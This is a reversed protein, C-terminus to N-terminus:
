KYDIMINPKTSLLYAISPQVIRSCVGFAVAAMAYDDACLTAFGFMM